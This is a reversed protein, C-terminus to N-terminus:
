DRVTGNGIIVYKESTLQRLGLPGRAHLKQTSIGIEAGFGFEFGDTFRTSANIYVCGSDVEKAFKQQALINETIIADSHSTNHRNIHAIAEDIDLVTKVSIILALHETYYDKETAKECDSFYKKCEEDAKITVGNIKLANFLKEVFKPAIKKDILVQECANCVTPRQLKANLIVDIAMDIDANEHVYIHCNGGASAIVPMTANELVLKKLADGGRPIIVDVYKGQKLLDHTADRSVDDIFQVINCNFGGKTLSEVIIKYLQRNSNIADSGGRLVVANGTKICLGAVDVTVNPRAEYIVAVVGLSARVKSINLGSLTDWSDVIEGIPDPLLMLQKLGACMAEIRNETLTLRDKFASDKGELNKLDIENAHLIKAKSELIGFAILELMNNKDANSMASLEYSSKKANLCLEEIYAM